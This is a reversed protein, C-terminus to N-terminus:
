ETKAEWRGVYASLMVVLAFGWVLVENMMFEQPDIKRRDDIRLVPGCSTGLM